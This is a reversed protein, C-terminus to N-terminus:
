STKEKPDKKLWTTQVRAGGAASRGITVRGGHGTVIRNVIALGLGVGGSDRGRDKELRAFPLLVKERQTEPIGPGDDQVTVVVQDAQESLELTVAARAYKVANRLLNEVARQFQRQDAHVQASAPLRASVSVGGGASDHAQALEVLDALPQVADFPKESLGHEDCQVWGLLEAVLEDLDDLEHTIAEMRNASEVPDQESDLLEVQFRLRSLPSGLEHSIAQILEDRDRVLREVRAAMTNFSAALEHSPGSVNDVRADLAGGGIADSARAVKKLQQAMRLGVVSAVVPLFVLALVVGFPFRPVPLEPRLPGVAMAGAGDSFALYIWQERLAPKVFRPAGATLDRGAQKRAEALPVLQVPVAYDAKM